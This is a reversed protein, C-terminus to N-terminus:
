LKSFQKALEDPALHIITPKGQPCQYPMSCQMLQKVLQQAETITLRRESSIAARSAAMAIMKEKERQLTKGDQFDRLNHLINNILVPVDANGFVEPIADVIFTNQGFEHIHIGMQNLGDMNERLLSAEFSSMELTYPILLTQVQPTKGENALTLKEFIIRSHAARQDLLCIGEQMGQLRQHSEPWTISMPDLLVYRKIVTVVTPLPPPLPDPFLSPEPPKQSVMPLETIRTIKEDAFYMDFRDKEFAYPPPASSITNNREFSIEPAKLFPIVEDDPTEVQSVAHDSQLANEVARAIMEKLLLEQRLKVERKQPHINVDVLDGPMSLHLVFVPHRTTPLTTGYGERVAFAVLPSVVGRNNIFLYQGTRNQRSCSPKGIYGRLTYDGKSAEIFCCGTLFDSGLVDGIRQSLMEQFCTSKSAHALLITKQDSILQFKIQPNGLSLLSLMKLIENTDSTPSKQFKKRVPVNFFLSKVEITTGKSRVTPCCKLIRGGDVIVMTGQEPIDTACTLLTFKSISAISPIAEGRFGMTSLAYVDDLDRIKSTAHRELCLVADDEIMGCGNDSIRILQRGGGKIEVCVDTSGADISNEVLEKVVSAPNEIVEGAAIKNITHETLVRIKSSM